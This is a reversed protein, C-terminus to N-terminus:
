AASLLESWLLEAVWEGRCLGSTYPPEGSARGCKAFSLLCSESDLWFSGALTSATLDEIDAACTCLNRKWEIHMKLVKIEYNAVLKNKVKQM